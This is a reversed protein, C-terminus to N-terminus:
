NLTLWDCCVSVYTFSRQALADSIVGFIVFLLLRVFEYCEARVRPHGPPFWSVEDTELNWYYYRGTWVDPEEVWNEPLPYKAMM